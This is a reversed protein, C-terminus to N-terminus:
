KYIGNKNRWYYKAGFNETEKHCDECLTIGNNIDWFPKYTIALKLLTEIDDIPSFQSYEKLFEQYLESLAKIHHANIKYSSGCERCIRNDRILRWKPVYLIKNCFNCSKNIGKQKKM